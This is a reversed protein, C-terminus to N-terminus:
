NHNLPCNTLKLLSLTSICRSILGFTRPAIEKLPTERAGKKQETRRGGGKKEKNMRQTGTEM